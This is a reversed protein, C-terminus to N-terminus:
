RNMFGIYLTLTTTDPPISPLVEANQIEEHLRMWEERLERRPDVRGVRTGIRCLFSGDQPDIDWRSEATTPLTGGNRQLSEIVAFLYRFSERRVLLVRGECVIRITNM